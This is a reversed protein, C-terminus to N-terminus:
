HYLAKLRGWSTSHTPVVNDTSLTLEDWYTAIGGIDFRFNYVGVWGSLLPNTGDIIPNANLKTGDFYCDFANASCVVKMHHWTNQPLSGTVGPLATTFWTALTQPTQNLLKRFNIQFLGSQIVFQYCSTFGNTPDARLVLGRRSDGAGSFFDAEWIYDAQGLPDTCSLAIGGSNPDANTLVGVTHDGSPNAYAADGSALTTGVLNQPCVLREEMNWTLDGGDFFRFAGFELLLLTLEQLLM